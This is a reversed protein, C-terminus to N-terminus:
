GLGIDEFEYFFNYQWKKDVYDGPFENIIKIIQSRWTQTKESKGV